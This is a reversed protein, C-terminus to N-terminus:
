KETLGQRLAYATADARGRAGIKDYINTIHRGVTRVSLGLHQSIEKSTMGAAIMRLIETERPTLPKGAKADAHSSAHPSDPQQEALFKEMTEIAAEPDTFAGGSDGELPVLLSNPIGEALRQGLAFPWQLDNRSHCVLTPCKVRDLLHSVDHDMHAEVLRGMTEGTISNFILDMWQEQEDEDRTRTAIDTLSRTAFRWNARALLAFAQTLERPLVDRIGPYAEYLILASVKDPHLVTYDIARAAGSAPGLVAFQDLTLADVVAEIDLITAEPSLDDVDRQSLGSGRMDYRILTRGRGIRRIADDYTPVLHSLSFSYVYHVLLLPPGEGEACYAIRVGDETTCYHVAQEVAGGFRHIALKRPTNSWYIQARVDRTLRRHQM